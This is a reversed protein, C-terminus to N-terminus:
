LRTTHSGFQHFLDLSVIAEDYKIFVATNGDRLETVADTLNVSGHEKMGPNTAILGRTVDGEVQKANRIKIKHYLFRTRIPYPEGRTIQRTRATSVWLIGHITDGKRVKIM